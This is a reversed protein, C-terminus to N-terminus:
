SRRKSYWVPPKLLVNRLRAERIAIAKEWVIYIGYLAFIPIAIVILESLLAFMLGMNGSRWGHPVIRFFFDSFADSFSTVYIIMLVFTLIQWRRVVAVGIRGGVDLEVHRIGSPMVLVAGSMTVKKAPEDTVIQILGGDGFDLFKFGLEASIVEGDESPAGISVHATQRKTSAIAIDLVRAGDVNIKIPDVIDEQMIPVRGINGFRVYQVFVSDLQEPPQGPQEYLIKISYGTERSIVQALPLPPLVEYVLEKERRSARTVFIAYGLSVIALVLGLLGLATSLDM